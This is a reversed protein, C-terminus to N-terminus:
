QLIINLFVYTNRMNNQIDSSIYIQSCKSNMKLKENESKFIDFIGQKYFEVIHSIKYSFTRVM